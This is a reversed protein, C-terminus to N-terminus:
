NYLYWNGAHEGARREEEDVSPGVVKSEWTGNEKLDFVLEPMECPGIYAGMWNGFLKALIEPPIRDLKLAPNGIVDTWLFHIEKTGEELLAEKEEAYLPLAIAVITVIAIDLKMKLCFTLCSARSVPLAYAIRSPPQFGTEDKMEHHTLWQERHAQEAETQRALM